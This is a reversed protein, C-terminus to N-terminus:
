LGQEAALRAAVAALHDAVEAAVRLRRPEPTDGLAGRLYDYAAVLRADPGAGARRRDYRARRRAWRAELGSRTQSTTRPASM